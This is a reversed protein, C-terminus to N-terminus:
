HREQEPSSDGGLSAILEVEEPTLGLLEATRAADLRSLLRRVIQAEGELTSGM